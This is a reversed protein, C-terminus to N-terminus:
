GASAGERTSRTCIHTPHAMATSAPNNVPRALTNADAATLPKWPEADPADDESWRTDRETPDSMGM